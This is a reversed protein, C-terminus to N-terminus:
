ENEIVKIIEDIAENGTKYYFSKIHGKEPTMIVDENLIHHMWKKLDIVSKLETALLNDIMVKGNGFAQNKGIYEAVPVGFYVAELSLGSNNVVLGDIIQFFQANNMETKIFRVNSPFECINKVDNVNQAPHLKIVPDIEKFNRISQLFDQILVRLQDIGIPNIGLALIKRSVNFKYKKKLTEYEKDDGIHPEIISTGTIHIKEEGEGAEMYQKKQIAGWVCAHDALLPSFGYPPNIVGHQIVFTPVKNKRAALVLPATHNGRDYDTIIKNPVGHSFSDLWYQLKCLQFFLALILSKKYHGEIYTMQIISKIQRRRKLWWMLVKWQSISALRITNQFLIVTTDVSDTVLSKTQFLIVNEKWRSVLPDMMRNLHPSNGHKTIILKDSLLNITRRNLLINQLVNKLLSLRPRLISHKVKKNILEFQYAFLGGIPVDHYTIANLEKELQILLNARDSNEKM